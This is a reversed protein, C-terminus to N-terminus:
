SAAVGFLLHLVIILILFHLFVILLLLVNLSLGVSWCLFVILLNFAGGEGCWRRSNGRRRGDGADCDGDDPFHL